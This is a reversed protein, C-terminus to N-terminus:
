RCAPRIARPRAATFSRCPPEPVILFRRNAGIKASTQSGRPSALSAINKPHFTELSPPATQRRGRDLIPSQRRPSWAPAGDATDYRRERFDVASGRGIAGPCSSHSHPHSSGSAYSSSSIAASSSVGVSDGIKAFAPGVPAPRKRRELRRDEVPKAFRGDFGGSFWAAVHSIWTRRNTKMIRDEGTLIHMGLFKFGSQVGELFM